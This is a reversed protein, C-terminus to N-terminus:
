KGPSNPVPWQAFYFLRWAKKFAAGAAAPTAAARGAEAYRQARALAESKIEDISREPVQAGALAPLLALLATAVITALKM